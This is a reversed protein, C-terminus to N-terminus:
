SNKCDSKTDKIESLVNSLLLGIVNTAFRGYMGSSVKSSFEGSL